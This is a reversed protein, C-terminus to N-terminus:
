NRKPPVVEKGNKFTRKVSRSENEERRAAVRSLRRVYSESVGFEEATQRTPDDITLKAKLDAHFKIIATKKEDATLSQAEAESSVIDQKLSPATEEDDYLLGIRTLYGIADNRTLYAGIQVAELPVNYIDVPALRGARREERIAAIHHDMIQDHKIKFGLIMEETVLLPMWLPRDPLKVYAAMFSDVADESMPCRLPPLKQLVTALELRDTEDLRYPVGKGGLPPADTTYIKGWVCKIGEFNKDFPSVAEAIAKCFELYPILPGSPLKVRAQVIAM